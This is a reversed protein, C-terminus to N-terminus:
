LTSGPRMKAENAFRATTRNSDPLPRRLCNGARACPKRSAIRPGSKAPRGKHKPPPERRRGLRAPRSDAPDTAGGGVSTLAAGEPPRRRRPRDAQGQCGGAGASFLRDLPRSLRGRCLPAPTPVVLGAFWGAARPPGGRPSSGIAVSLSSADGMVAHPQQEVSRRQDALHNAREHAAIQDPEHSPPNSANPRCGSPAVRDRPPLAAGPARTRTPATRAAPVPRHRLVVEPAQSSPWSFLSSPLSV